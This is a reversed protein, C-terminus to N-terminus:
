REGFYTGGDALRASVETRLRDLHALTFTTVDPAPDAVLPTLDMAWTIGALQDTAHATHFTANAARRGLTALDYRKGGALQSDFCRLLAAALEPRRGSDLAVKADDPLWDLDRWVECGLVRRPRREPPLARLAALCRLLVAIHTPHKDAPNHLYVVEPSCASFLKVLDAMVGPHGPAKVDASPHALQIQIAYGGLTAARRQEERRVARMQADTFKAYPGTRPAGAGDTVVVGGFARREPADLCDCLGAHAMIEIDDQHAAVCLDTVRALAAAADNGAPVFIDADPRSFIM